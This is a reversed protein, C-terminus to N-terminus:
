RALDLEFRNRRGERREDRRACGEERASRARENKGRVSEGGIVEVGEEAMKREAEEKM